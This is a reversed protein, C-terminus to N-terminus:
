ITNVRGLMVETRITIAEQAKAQAAKGDVHYRYVSVLHHWLYTGDRRSGWCLHEDCQTCTLGRMGGNANRETARTGVHGCPESKIEKTRKGVVLANAPGVDDQALVFMASPPKGATNKRKKQCIPDGAWHGFLNCDNCRSKQKLLTIKAAREKKKREEFSLTGSFGWKGSGAGSSTASTPPGSKKPGTKKIFKKKGQYAAALAQMDEDTLAQLEGDEGM